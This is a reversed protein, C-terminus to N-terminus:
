GLTKQSDCLPKWLDTTEPETNEKFRRKTFNDKDKNNIIIIIALPARCVSSLSKIERKLTSQVWTKKFGSLPKSHKEIYFIFFLIAFIIIIIILM